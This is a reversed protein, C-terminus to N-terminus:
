FLFTLYFIVIKSLFWDTNTTLWGTLHYGIRDPDSTSFCYRLIPNSNTPEIDKFSIDNGYKATNRNFFCYSIPYSGPFYTNLNHRLAGGDGMTNLANCKTFLCNSLGILASNTWVWVAGGDPTEDTANCDVFRCNNIIGAGKINSSCKQILSAGGSAKSTCSIFSSQTISLKQTISYIWIAGSGEDNDTTSTSCKHFSSERVDLTHISSSHIAGGKKLASCFSFSCKEVTLVYNGDSCKIAAGADSAANISTWMCSIFAMSKPLSRLNALETLPTSCGIVSLTSLMCSNSNLGSHFYNHPNYIATRKRVCETFSSNSSSFSLKTKKTLGSCIIGYFTDISDTLSTIRINPSIQTQSPSQYM